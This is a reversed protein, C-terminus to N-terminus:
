ECQEKLHKYHTPDAKEIIYIVTKVCNNAYRALGFPDDLSEPHSGANTLDIICTKTEESLGEIKDLEDAWKEPNPSSYRFRLFRELM